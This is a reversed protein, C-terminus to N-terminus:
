TQQFWSVTQRAFTVAGTKWRQMAARAYTQMDTQV